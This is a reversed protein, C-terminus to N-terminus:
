RNPRDEPGPHDYSLSEVPLPFQPAEGFPSLAGALDAAFESVANVGDDVPWTPDKHSLASTRRQRRAM